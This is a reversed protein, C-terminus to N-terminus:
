PTDLMVLVIIISRGIVIPPMVPIPDAVIPPVVVGMAGLMTMTGRQVRLTSFHVPPMFTVQTQVSGVEQVMICFRQVMIAPPMHLMLQMIFPMTTQQQLMVMPMHLTSIVLSPQQMVQVLPSLPQQSM